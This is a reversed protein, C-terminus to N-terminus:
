SVTVNSFKDSIPIKRKREAGRERERESKVFKSSLIVYFFVINTFYNTIGYHRLKISLSYNINLEVGIKTQVDKFFFYTNINTYTYM